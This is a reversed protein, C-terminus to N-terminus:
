FHEIRHINDMALVAELADGLLAAWRELEERSECHDQRVEVAANPLGAAGAHRNITYAIEKGSYPENDGVHWDGSRRLLDILPVAVRPDRNWLIGLDWFRDEGGFTPTFTHISFLV